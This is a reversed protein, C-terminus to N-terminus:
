KGEIIPQAINSPVVDYHNFEMTFTARGATMSRLDGIYGFMEGLPVHANISVGGGRKEQGQIQGRRRNLDGICDGLYDEPTIVETKM